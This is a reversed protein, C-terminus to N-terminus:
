QTETSIALAQQNYNRDTVMKELETAMGQYDALSGTILDLREVSGSQQQVSSDERLYQLTERAEGARQLYEQLYEAERTLLYFSLASVSEDLQHQAENISRNIPLDTNFVSEVNNSLTSNSTSVLVGVVALTLLLLTFGTIIKFRITLRSLLAHM